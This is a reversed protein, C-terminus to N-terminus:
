REGEAVAAGRVAEDAAEVLREEGADVRSTPSPVMGSVTNKMNWIVKAIMVGASTMPAKASRMRKEATSSNVRATAAARRRARDRVPHPAAAPQRFEADHIEGAADHHVHGGAIAASTHASTSPWRRPNGCVAIGGCLRVIVTVPAPMSHTPQNPKLAPLASAALPEAPMAISSSACRRTRRRARRSPADFPHAVALRRHEADDGAHDGAEAGDRRRRAEDARDARDSMPRRRRCRHAEEGGAVSACAARDVIREVHRRHVADAAHEARQEGAHERRDPEPPAPKVTCFLM